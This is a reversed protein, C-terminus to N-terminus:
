LKTVVLFYKFGITKHLWHAQRTHMCVKVLRVITGNIAVVVVFVVAVAVFVVAVVVVNKDMLRDIAIVVLIYDNYVKITIGKNGSTRPLM